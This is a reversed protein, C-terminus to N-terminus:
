HGISVHGCAEPTCRCSPCVWQVFCVWKVSNRKWGGGLDQSCAELIGATPFDPNWPIELTFGDALLTMLNTSLVTIVALVIFIRRIRKM